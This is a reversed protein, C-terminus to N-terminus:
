LKIYKDIRIKGKNPEIEAPKRPLFIPKVPACKIVHEQRIM